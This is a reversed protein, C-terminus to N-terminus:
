NFGNYFLVDTEFAGRDVATGIIRDVGNIDTDLGAITVQANSGSNIAPSDSLLGTPQLLVNIKLRPDIPESVTGIINGNTNDSVGFVTGDVGFLNFSSSELLEASIDDPVGVERNKAVISNHMILNDGISSYIGGGASSIGRLPNDFSERLLDFGANNEAVTSNFILSADMTNSRTYLAGGRWQCLNDFFLTNRLTFNSQESAYVAGGNRDAQNRDLESSLVEFPRDMYLAGGHADAINFSFVTNEITVIHTGTDAFIAGGQGLDSTGPNDDSAQNFSFTSNQILSDLAGSQFALAGGNVADNFSFATNKTELKGNSDVVVAGGRGSSNLPTEGDSLTLDYLRLRGGQNIQFHRLGDAELKIAPVQSDPLTGQITIASDIALASDSTQTQYEFQDGVLNLIIVTSSGPNTTTINEDFRILDPGSFNNEDNAQEVASRLTDITFVDPSIESIVQGGGTDLDTQVIFEAAQSIGSLFMLVCALLKIPQTFTKNKM